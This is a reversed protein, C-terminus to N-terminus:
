DDIRRPDAQFLVGAIPAFINEEPTPLLGPKKALIPM